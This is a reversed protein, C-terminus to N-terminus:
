QQAGHILFHKFQEYNMPSKLKIGYADARGGYGSSVSKLNDLVAELLQKDRTRVSVANGRFLIYNGKRKRRVVELVPLYFKGIERRDLVNVRKGMLELEEFKISDVNAMFNEYNDIFKRNEPNLMEKLEESNNPIREYFSLGLRLAYDPLEQSIIALMDAITYIEESKLFQNALKSKEFYNPMRAKLESLSGEELGTRYLDDTIEATSSIFLDQNSSKELLLYVLRSTPIEGSEAFLLVNKTTYPSTTHHDVIWGEGNTWKDLVLTSQDSPVIKDGSIRVTVDPFYHKIQAASSIGDWDNDAEVTKISRLIKLVDGNTFQQTRYFKQM